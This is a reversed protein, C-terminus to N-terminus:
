SRLVRASFSPPFTTTDRSPFGIQPWPPSHLPALGVATGDPSFCRVGGGVVVAEGLLKSQRQEQGSLILMKLGRQERTTRKAKWCSPSRMLMIIHLGRGSRNGCSKQEGPLFGLGRSLQRERECGSNQWFTLTFSAAVRTPPSCQAAWLSRRRNWIVKNITTLQQKKLTNLVPLRTTLSHM